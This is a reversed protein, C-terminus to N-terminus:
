SISFGRCALSNFIKRWQQSRGIHELLLSLNVEDSEHTRSFARIVDVVSARDCGRIGTLCMLYEIIEPRRRLHRNKIDIVIDPLLDLAQAYHIYNLCWNHGIRNANMSSLAETHRNKKGLYAREDLMRCLSRM